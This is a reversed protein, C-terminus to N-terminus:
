QKGALRRARVMLAASPVVKGSLYTSLRPESTGLRSAFERRGLGSRAFLQRLEDAVEARESAIARARAEAVVTTLLEYTGYPHTIELAEEVQRAVHGWPDESIEAALRGWDVISGREVAAMIGEFPWDRVPLDASVDLNRFKVM